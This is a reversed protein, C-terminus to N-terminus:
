QEVFLLSKSRFPNCFKRLLFLIILARFRPSVATDRRRKMDYCYRYDNDLRKEVNKNAPILALKMGQRMFWFIVAEVIGAAFSQGYICTLLRDNNLDHPRTSEFKWALACSDSKDVYHSVRGEKM